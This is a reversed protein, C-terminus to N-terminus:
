IFIVLYALLGSIMATKLLIDVSNAGFGQVGCQIAPQPQNTPWQVLKYNAVVISCSCWETDAAGRGVVNQTGAKSRAHTRTTNTSV